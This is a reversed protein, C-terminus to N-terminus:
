RSHEQMQKVQARTNAISDDIKSFLDNVSKEDDDIFSDSSVSSTITDSISGSNSNNIEHSIGLGKSVPIKLEGRLFLSDSAFLRNVNRIQETQLFIIILM